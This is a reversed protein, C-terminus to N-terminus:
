KDTNLPHGCSCGFYLSVKNASSAFLFGFKSEIPTREDLVLALNNHSHV